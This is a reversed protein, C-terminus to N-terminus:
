DAEYPPGLNKHQTSLSTRLDLTRKTRTYSNTHSGTHASFGISRQTSSSFSYSRLKEHSAGQTKGRMFSEWENQTHMVISNRLNTKESMNITFTQLRDVKLTM